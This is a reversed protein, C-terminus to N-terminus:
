LQNVQKVTFYKSNTQYYAQFDKLTSEGNNPAAHRMHNSHVIKHVQVPTFGEALLFDLIKFWSLATYYEFGYADITTYKLLELM